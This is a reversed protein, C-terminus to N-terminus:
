EWLNARILVRKIADVEAQIHAIRTFQVVLAAANEELQRLARTLEAFEDRRVGERDRRLRAIDGQIKVLRQSLAVRKDTRATRRRKVATM